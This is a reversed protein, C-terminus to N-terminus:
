VLKFKYNPFDEFVKENSLIDYIIYLLKRSTAIIAKGSGKKNKIKEYFTKLYSSYRIAVLTCQVLTTRPLKNGHKTIRGQHMTDNSQKIRPVIGFYAALKKENEFDKINGIASLLITGSKEGIGKISTINEFGKLKSGRSNMEQELKLIGENLKKIQDIIVELELRAGENVQYTGVKDLGKKSTFDEQKTVIGHANLIAHVKNKLMTRMEVLKHRTNAISRIEAINDDPMRVEPLMEKQLYFALLEADKRDTKQLSQSIVKFETTNVVVTRALGNIQKIFNRTYGLIEVAISDGERLEQKFRDINALKYEKFKKIDGELFCATFKNKHLDIGISRM